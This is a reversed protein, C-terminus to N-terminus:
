LSRIYESVIFARLTRIDENSVAFFEALYRMGYEMPFQRRIIFTPLIRQEGCFLVSQYQHNMILLGNNVEISSQPLYFFVGHRSVDLTNIVVKPIQPLHHLVAVTEFRFRQYLKNPDLPIKQEGLLFIDSNSPFTCILNDKMELIRLESKSNRNFIILYDGVEYPDPDDVEIEMYDTKVYTVRGECMKDGYLVQVTHM